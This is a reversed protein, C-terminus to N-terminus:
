EIGTVHDGTKLVINSTNFIEAKSREFSFVHLIFLADLQSLKLM